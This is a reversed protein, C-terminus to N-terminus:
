LKTPQLLKSEVTDMAPQVMLTLLAVVWLEAGLALTEGETDIEMFIIAGVSRGNDFTSKLGNKELYICVSRYVITVGNLFPTLLEVPFSWCLPATASPMYIKPVEMFAVADGSWVAVMNSAVFTIRLM